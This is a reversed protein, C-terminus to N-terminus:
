ETIDPSRLRAPSGPDIPGLAIDPAAESYRAPPVVFPPGIFVGPSVPVFYGEQYCGEVEAATNFIEIVHGATVTYSRGEFLIVTATPDDATPVFARQFLREDDRACNHRLM